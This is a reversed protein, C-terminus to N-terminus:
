SNSIKPTLVAPKDAASILVHQRAMAASRLARLSLFRVHLSSHGNITKIGNRTFDLGREFFGVLRVRAGVIQDHRDVPEDGFPRPQAVPEAHAEVLPQFFFARVDSFRTRILL